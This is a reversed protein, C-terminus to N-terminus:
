CPMMTIPKQDVLINRSLYHIEDRTRIFDNQSSKDIPAICINNMIKILLFPQNEYLDENTKDLIGIEQNGTTLYYKLNM